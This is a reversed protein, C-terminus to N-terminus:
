IIKKEKFLEIISVITAAFYFILALEFLITGM